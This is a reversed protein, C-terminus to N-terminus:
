SAHFCNAGSGTSTTSWSSSWWTSKFGTLSQRYTNGPNNPWYAANNTWHHWVELSSQTWVRVSWGTNCNMNGSNSGAAAVPVATGLVLVLALVLSFRVPVRRRSTTM